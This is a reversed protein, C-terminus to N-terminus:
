TLLIQKQAFYGRYSGATALVESARVQVFLEIRHDGAKKSTGGERQRVQGGGLVCLESERETLTM